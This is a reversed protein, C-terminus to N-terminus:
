CDCYYWLHAEAALQDLYGMIEEHGSYTVKGTTLRPVATDTETVQHALSLSKLREIIEKAQASDIHCTVVIM